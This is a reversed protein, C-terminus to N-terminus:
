EEEAREGTTGELSKSLAGAGIRAAQDLARRRRLSAQAATHSSEGQQADRGGTPSEACSQSNDAVASAQAGILKCVDLLASVSIRPKAEVKLEECAEPKLMWEPIALQSTDPLRVIVVAASDRRLYRVVQVAAGYRPHYRYWIKASYLDHATRSRRLACSRWANARLPLLSALWGPTSPACLCRLWSENGAHRWWANALLQSDARFSLQRQVPVTVATAFTVCVPIFRGM